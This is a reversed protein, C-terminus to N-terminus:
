QLKPNTEEQSRTYLYQNAVQLFSDTKRQACEIDELKIGKIGLTQSSYWRCSQLHKDAQVELHLPKGWERLPRARLEGIIQQDHKRLLDRLCREFSTDINVDQQYVKPLRATFSHMWEIWKEEFM